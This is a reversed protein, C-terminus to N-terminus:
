SDLDRLYAKFELIYNKIDKLKEIKKDKGIIREIADNLLQIDKYAKFNDYTTTEFNPEWPKL